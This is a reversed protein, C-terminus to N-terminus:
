VCLDNIHRRAIRLNDKEVPQLDCGKTAEEREVAKVWARSGLM